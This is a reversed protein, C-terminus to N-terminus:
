IDKNNKLYIVLVSTTGKPPKELSHTFNGEGYIKIPNTAHGTVEYKDMSIIQKCAVIAEHKDIETKLTVGIM